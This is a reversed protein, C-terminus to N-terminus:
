AGSKSTPGAAARGCAGRRASRGPTVLDGLVDGIADRGPLVREAAHGAGTAAQEAVYGAVSGAVVATGRATAAALRASGISTALSYSALSRAMSTM